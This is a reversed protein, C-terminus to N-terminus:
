CVTAVVNVVSIFPLLLCHSSIKESMLPVILWFNVNRHEIRARWEIHQTITSARVDGLKRARPARNSIDSTTRYPLHASRLSVWGPCPGIYSVVIIVVHFSTAMLLTHQSSGHRPM